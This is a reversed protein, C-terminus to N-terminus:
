PSAKAFAELTLCHQNISYIIPFDDLPCNFRNANYVQPILYLDAMSVNDGFCFKGNSSNQELLSEIASFGKQIWNHYWTTKNEDSVDFEKQLYQLVRLNNLPHIDAAVINCITRVKAREIADKPLLAPNPYTEELYEIIATSQSISTGDALKLTPVLKSPNISQYAQSHQQGGGEVLHIETTKYNVGKINLAIRVRYSATSRFYDFLELM